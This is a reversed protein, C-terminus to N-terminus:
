SRNSWQIILKLYASKDDNPYDIAYLPLLVLALNVFISVICRLQQQTIFTDALHSELTPDLHLKNVNKIGPQYFSHQAFLEGIAKAKHQANGQALFILAIITPILAYKADLDMESKSTRKANEDIVVFKSYFEVWREDQMPRDDRLLKQSALLDSFEKKTLDKNSNMSFAREFRLKLKECPIFHINLTQQKKIM